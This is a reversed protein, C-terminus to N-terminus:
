FTMSFPIEHGGPLWGVKESYITKILDISAIEKRNKSNRGQFCPLPSAIWLVNSSGKIM